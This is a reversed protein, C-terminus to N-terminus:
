HQPSCCSTTLRGPLDDVHLRQAVVIVAGEKPKNLRTIATGTFWEWLNDRQTESAVDAAKSPDDIILIDAGKGTLPGGKSTALRFGGATTRINDLSAKGRDIISSTFTARHWDSQMLRRSDYAFSEALDAGYSINIIRKAPDRGLVWAPFAVSACHSKGHRPPMLILLRRCEGNAVRELQHCIARIHHSPHFTEGADKGSLEYFSRQVYPALRTAYLGRVADSPTMLM